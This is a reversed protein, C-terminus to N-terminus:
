ILFIMSVIDSFNGGAIYINTRKIVKQVRSLKKDTKNRKRSNKERKKM